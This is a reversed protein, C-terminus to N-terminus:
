SKDIMKIQDMILKATIRYAARYQHVGEVMWPHRQSRMSRVIEELCLGNSFLGDIVGEPQESFRSCQELLKCYAFFITLFTGSRGIGAYCHVILRPEGTRSTEATLEASRRHVFTVFEAMSNSEPVGYNPWANYQFHNVRHDEEFLDNSITFERQVTDNNIEIARIHKVTFAGYKMSTGPDVPFYQACGSIGPQVDCLMVISKCKTEWCMKWFDSITGEDKEDTDPHTGPALPAMAIIFKDGGKEGNLNVWSANIYQEKSGKEFSYLNSDFPILESKRNKNKREHGFKCLDRWALSDTDGNPNPGILQLNAYERDAPSTGIVKKVKQDEDDHQSVFKSLTKDRLEHLFM